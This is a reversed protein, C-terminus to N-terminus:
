NLTTVVIMKAPGVKLSKGNQALARCITDGFVNAGSSISKTLKVDPRFYKQFFSSILTASGARSTREAPLVSMIAMMGGDEHELIHCHLPFNGVIDGKSFDMELIVSPCQTQMDKTSVAKDCPELDITDRFTSQELENPQRGNRELV